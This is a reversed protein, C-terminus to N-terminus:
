DRDESLKAPQECSRATELESLVDGVDLPSQLRVPVYRKDGAAEGRNPRSSPHVPRPPLPEKLEDDIVRLLLPLDDIEQRDHPEM